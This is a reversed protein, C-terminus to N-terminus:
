ILLIIPFQNEILNNSRRQFKSSNTNQQNGNSKNKNNLFKKFAEREPCKDAYQNEGCLHCEITNKNNNHNNRKQHQTNNNYNSKNNKNKYNNNHNSNLRNNNNHNNQQNNPNKNINNRHHNNNSRSKDLKNINNIIQNSKNGNNDKAISLRHEQLAAEFYDDLRKNKDNALTTRLYSYENPIAALFTGM